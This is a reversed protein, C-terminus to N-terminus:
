SLKALKPDATDIQVNPSVLSSSKFDGVRSAELSSFGVRPDIEHLVLM